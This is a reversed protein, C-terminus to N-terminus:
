KASAVRAVNGAVTELVRVCNSNVLGFLMESMQERRNSIVQCKTCACLPRPVPVVVQTGTEKHTHTNNAAQSDPM